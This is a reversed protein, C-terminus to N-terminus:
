MTLSMGKSDYEDVTDRFGFQRYLADARGDAWLGVYATRPTNGRVWGMLGAMVTKALGQGRHGPLTCIDSILLFCGGDGTIRGVSVTQGAHLIQICFLTNPLGKASAEPSFPTLGTTTRLSIYTEISPIAHSISYNPPLASSM